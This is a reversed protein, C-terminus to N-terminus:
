INQHHLIGDLEEDGAGLGLGLMMGFLPFCPSGVPTSSTPHAQTHTLHDATTTQPDTSDKAAETSAGPAGTVRSAGM